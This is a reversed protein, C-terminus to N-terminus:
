RLVSASDLIRFTTKFFFPAISLTWFTLLQILSLKICYRQMMRGLCCSRVLKSTAVSVHFDPTKHSTVYYKHLSATIDLTADKDPQMGNAVCHADIVCGVNKVSTILVVETGRKISNLEQIQSKSVRLKPCMKPDPFGVGELGSSILSCLKRFV